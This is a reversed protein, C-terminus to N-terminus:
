GKRRKDTQRDIKRKSENAGGTGQRRGERGGTDTRTGEGVWGVWVSWDVIVM